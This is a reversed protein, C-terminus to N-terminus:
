QAIMPEPRRASAARPSQKRIFRSLLEGRSSVGFGRYLAKVYVHVTHPSISLKQAIQKESDGALLADLTQSLRPSLPEVPAASANTTEDQLQRGLMRCLDAVRRRKDTLTSHPQPQASHAARLLAGFDAVRRSREEMIVGRSLISGGLSSQGTVRKLTIAGNVVLCTYRESAQLAMATM